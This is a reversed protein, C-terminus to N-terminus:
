KWRLSLRKPYHQSLDTHSVIGGHFYFTARNAVEGLDESSNIGKIDLVTIVPNFYLSTQSKQINEREEVKKKM